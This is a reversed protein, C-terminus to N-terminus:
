FSCWIFRENRLRSSYIEKLKEIYIEIKMLKEKQNESLSSFYEKLYDLRAAEIYQKLFHMVEEANEKDKLVDSFIGELYWKKATEINVGLIYFVEKIEKQNKLLSNELIEKKKNIKAYIENLCNMGEELIKKENELMELLKEPKLNRISAYLNEREKELNELEINIKMKKSNLKRYNKRVDTFFRTPIKEKTFDLITKESFKILPVYKGELSVVRLIKGNMKRYDFKGWEKEIELLKENLETQKNILDSIEKNVQELNKIRTIYDEVIALM